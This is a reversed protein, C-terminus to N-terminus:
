LYKVLDKFFETSINSLDSEKGKAYKYAIFHGRNVLKFIYGHINILNVKNILIPKM